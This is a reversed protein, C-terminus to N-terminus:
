SGLGASGARGAAFERVLAALESGREFPLWHAAGEIRALRADPLEAALAEAHAPPVFGDQMGCVVLAPVDARRLRGRLKPNHFYPDWALRATAGLAQWYPLVVEIPVDVLKGVDGSFDGIEHMAAALPHEQDVFLMEALESPSRGFLEAIPAEPLHLGASNVLVLARLREPHRTALELALWGGLSLGMVVPRELGLADWLDLLVFVADEISDVHELAQSEGFGPLMPIVVDFDAALEELAPTLSEGGSSHLAVLTPGTGGRLVQLEGTPLAVRADAFAATATV